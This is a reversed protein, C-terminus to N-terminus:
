WFAQIHARQGANCFTSECWQRQERGWEVFGNWRVKECSLQFVRRCPIYRPAESHTSISTITYHPWWDHFLSFTYSASISRNVPRRNVRLWPVGFPISCSKISASDWTEPFIRFLTVTRVYIYCSKINRFKGVEKLKWVDVNESIRTFHALSWPWFGTDSWVFILRNRRKRHLLLFRRM